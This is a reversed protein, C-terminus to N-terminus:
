PLLQKNVNFANKQQLMQLMQTSILFASFDSIIPLNNKKKQGEQRLFDTVTPYKKQYKECM